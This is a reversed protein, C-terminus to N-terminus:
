YDLSLSLERWQDLEARAATLKAETTEVAFKGAIFRLPPKPEGTLRVFADALKVPDGPQRGNRGEFSGEAKPRRDDYDKIPESGFRLSERTLFDTRFPGPSVVIVFIGFPAVEKALAESFGELAFKTASYLSTFENGRIGALSSLNFIWGRKAARMVPLVARTVSLVGFVNTAFQREADTVSIEEFYGLQGYGANNVLVDVGGFRAVAADIAKQAQAADTVDLEVSLLRDNDPGLKESVATRKRAAAVVRDGARLAAQAIEAGLGRSAGTIFWVKAM